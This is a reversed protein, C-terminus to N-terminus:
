AARHTSRHGLPPLDSRHPRRMGQFAAPVLRSLVMYVLMALGLPLLWLVVVGGTALVGLFRLGHLMGGPLGWGLVPVAGGAFGLVSLWVFAVISFTGVLSGLVTAAVDSSRGDDSRELAGLTVWEWDARGMISIRGLGQM